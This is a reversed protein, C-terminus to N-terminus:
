REIRRTSTTAAWIAWPGPVSIGGDAFIGRITYREQGIAPTRIGATAGTRFRSRSGLWIDPRGNTRSPPARAVSRLWLDWDFTSPVPDEGEPRMMGQPWLPRNTWIHVEHVDGIAGGLDARLHPVRGRQYQARGHGLRWVPKGPPKM